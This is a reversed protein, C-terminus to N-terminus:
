NEAPPLLTAQLEDWTCNPAMIHPFDMSNDLGNDLTNFLQAYAWFCRGGTDRSYVLYYGTEGKHESKGVKTVPYHTKRGLEYKEEESKVKGSEAALLIPNAVFANNCQMYRQEVGAVDDKDYYWYASKEYLGENVYYLQVLEKDQENIFYFAEITFTQTTDYPNTFQKLLVPATTLVKFDPFEKKFLMAADLITSGYELKKLAKVFPENQATLGLSFAIILSLITIKKM